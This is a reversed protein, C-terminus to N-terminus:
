TTLRERTEKTEHFSEFNVRPEHWLARRGPPSVIPVFEKGRLIDAVRYCRRRTRLTGDRAATGDVSVVVTADLIASKLTVTSRDDDFAFAAHLPSSATADHDVLIPAWLNL